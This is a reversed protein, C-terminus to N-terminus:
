SEYLLQKKQFLLQKIRFLIILLAPIGFLHEHFSQAFNLHMAHHIAHGLGCGPCSDIGILRFMCLSPQAAATDMFFLLCLAAVWIVLELHQIIWRKIYHVKTVINM